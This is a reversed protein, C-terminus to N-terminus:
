RCATMADTASNKASESLFMEIEVASVDKGLSVELAQKANNQKCKSLSHAGLRM